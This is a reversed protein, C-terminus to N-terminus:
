NILRLKNMQVEKQKKLIAKKIDTKASCACSDGCGGSSKVRLTKITSWVTYAVAAFVISLVIIDQMIFIKLEISLDIIGGPIGFLFYAM